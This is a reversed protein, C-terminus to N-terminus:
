VCFTSICLTHDCPNMQFRLVLYNIFGDYAKGPNRYKLLSISYFLLTFGECTFMQIKDVM